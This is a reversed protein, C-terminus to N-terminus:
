GRPMPGMGRHAPQCFCPTSTRVTVPYCGPLPMALALVALVSLVPHFDSGAAFAKTAAALLAEEFEGKSLQGGLELHRSTAKWIRSLLADGPLEEFFSRECDADVRIFRAALPAFDAYPLTTVGGDEGWQLDPQAQKLAPGMDEDEDLYIKHEGRATLITAATRQTTLLAFRVM